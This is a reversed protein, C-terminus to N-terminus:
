IGLHQKIAAIEAELSQNKTELETVKPGTTLYKNENLVDLVAQKDSEDITQYGYQLTTNRTPKNM